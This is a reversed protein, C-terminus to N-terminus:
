EQILLDEGHRRLEHIISSQTSKATPASESVTKHTQACTILGEGIVFLADALKETKDTDNKDQQLNAHALREYLLQRVAKKHANAQRHPMSDPDSFEACANIFLCGYFNESQVWSEIFDLYATVTNEVPLRNLGSQMNTMFQQHRFALVAEILGEKNGFHAYLTRKTTGAQKALLEVGSAHFGHKYFTAYATTLITHKIDM